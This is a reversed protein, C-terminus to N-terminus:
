FVLYEDITTWTCGFGRRVKFFGKTPHEECPTNALTTPHTDSIKQYGNFPNECFYSVFLIKTKVKKKIFFM